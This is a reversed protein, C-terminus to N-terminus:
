STLQPEQLAHKSIQGVDANGEGYASSALFHIEYKVM